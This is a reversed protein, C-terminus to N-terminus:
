YEDVLPMATIVEDDGEDDGGDSDDDGDGDGDGDGVSEFHAAGSSDYYEREFKDGVPPLWKKGYGTSQVQAAHKPPATSPREIMDLSPTSAQEFAIIDINLM